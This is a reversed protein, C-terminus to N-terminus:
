RARTWRGHRGAVSHVAPVGMISDESTVGLLVTHLAALGRENNWRPLGRLNVANALKITTWVLDSSRPERVTPGAERSHSPTASIERKQQTTIGSTSWWAQHWRETDSFHFM